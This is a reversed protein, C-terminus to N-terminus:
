WGMPRLGARLAQDTRFHVVGVSRMLPQMEFLVSSDDGLRRSGAGVADGLKRSQNGEVLINVSNM